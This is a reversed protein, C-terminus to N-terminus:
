RLPVNPPPSSDDSRFPTTSKVPVPAECFVIGRYISVLFFGLLARKQRKKEFIKKRAREDRQSNGDPPEGKQSDHGEQHPLPPPSTSM